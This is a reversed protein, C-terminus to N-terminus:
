RALSVVTPDPEIILRAGSEDIRLYSSRSQWGGLVIMRPRMAADDLPSHIHGLVVLDAAGAQRTVFERYASLHRGDNTSRIQDNARDLMRDLMGAMPSPVRRFGELFAWGEMVAKWLRRAGLRHGHVLVVRRGFSDLVLPERVFRAGLREEYFPGLWADHNGPLITISGGRSRFAALARLGACAMPHTDIQRAAFWFDCLDGVITLTDEGSRADVWRAFRAAREPRDIRLHVDSAFFDSM